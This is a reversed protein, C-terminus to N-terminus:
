YLILFINQPNDFSVFRIKHYIRIIVSKVYTYRFILRNMTLNITHLILLSSIATTTSFAM